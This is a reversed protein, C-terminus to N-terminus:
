FVVVSRLVEGRHMREFAKEVHDPKVGVGRDSVRFTVTQDDASACLEVPTDPSAINAGSFGPALPIGSSRDVAITVSQARATAAGLVLAITFGAARLLGGGRREGM